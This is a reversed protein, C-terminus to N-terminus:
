CVVEDGTSRGRDSQSVGSCLQCVQLEVSSDQLWPACKVKGARRESDYSKQESERLRILSTFIRDTRRHVGDRKSVKWSYSRNQKKLTRKREGSRYAVPSAESQRAVVKQKNSMLQNWRSYDIKM